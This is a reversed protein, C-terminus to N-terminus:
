PQEDRRRRWREEFRSMVGSGGTKARRKTTGTGSAAQIPSAQRRTGFAYWASVVMVAFGAVGLLVAPLAVGAVLMGLGALLGIGGLAIARRQAARQRAGGLTSALKPDEAYLAREMQELLRQEHESLPV